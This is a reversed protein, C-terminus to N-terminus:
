NNKMQEWTNKGGNGTRRVKRMWMGNSGLPKHFTIMYHPRGATDEPFLAEEMNLESQFSWSNVLARGGPSSRLRHNAGASQFFSSMAQERSAPQGWAEWAATHPATCGWGWSRCAWRRRSRSALESPCPLLKCAHGNWETLGQEAVSHKQHQAPAGHHYSSPLTPASGSLLVCPFLEWDMYFASGWCNGTYWTFSSLTYASDRPPPRKCSLTYMFTRTAPVPRTSPGPSHNPSCAMTHLLVNPSLTTLKFLHPPSLGHPGVFALQLHITSTLNGRFHWSFPSMKSLNTSRWQAPQLHIFNACPLATILACPSSVM